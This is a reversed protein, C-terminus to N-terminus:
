ATGKPENATAIVLECHHCRLQYPVHDQQIPVEHNCPMLVAINEFGGGPKALMYFGLVRRIVVPETM